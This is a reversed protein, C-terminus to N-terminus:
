AYRVGECKACIIQKKNPFANRREELKEDIYEMLRDKLRLITEKKLVGNQFFEKLIIVIGDDAERSEGMPRQDKLYNFVFNVIQEILDKDPSLLKLKALDAPLLNSLVNLAVTILADYIDKSLNELLSAINESGSASVRVLYIGIRLVEEPRIGVPISTEEEKNDFIQFTASSPVVKTPVNPTTVNAPGLNSFLQSRGEKGLGYLQSPEFTHAANLNVRGDSTMSIRLKHQNIDKNIKIVDAFYQDKNAINKIGCIVETNGQVTGSVRRTEASLKDFIKRQKNSRLTARYKNITNAQADEIINQATRNSMAAQFFFLISASFQFLELKTAKEGHKIYKTILHILGNLVGAGGTVINAGRLVNVSMSLVEGTKTLNTGAAASRFLLSSAMGSGLGVGSTVINLWSGRAESNTLGISQEHVRRDRLHFSSRVLGYLGTAVTAVTAGVLVAPGVPTFAAVGLVGVAGLSAVTNVTDVSSLVRSKLGLAPSPTVTLKVAVFKEEEVIVGQYEGNQPSVIVCKPFMNDTLVSQWDQYVRANEDIYVRCPKSDVTTPICKRVKFFATCWMDVDTRIHLDVWYNSPTFQLLKLPKPKVCVVLLISVMLDDNNFSYKSQDCIKKYVNLVQEKQRSTYGELSSNEFLNGEKSPTGFLAFAINQKLHKRNGQDYKIWDCDPLNEFYQQQIQVPTLNIENFMDNEMNESQSTQAM